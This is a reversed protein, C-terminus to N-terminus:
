SLMLLIWLSIPYIYVYRIVDCTFAEMALVTSNLTRSSSSNSASSFYRTRSSHFLASGSGFTREIVRLCEKRWVSMFNKHKVRQDQVCYVTPLLPCSRWFFFTIGILWGDRENFGCWVHSTELLLRLFVFPADSLESFFFPLPLPRHRPTRKMRNM